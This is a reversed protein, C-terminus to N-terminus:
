SGKTLQASKFNCKGYCKNFKGSWRKDYYLMRGSSLLIIMRNRNSINYHPFIPIVHNMIQHYHYTGRSKMKWYITKGQQAM